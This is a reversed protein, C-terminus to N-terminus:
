SYVVVTVIASKTASLCDSRTASRWAGLGATALLVVAERLKTDPQANHARYQRDSFRDSSDVTGQNAGPINEASAKKDTAHNASEFEGLFIEVTQM